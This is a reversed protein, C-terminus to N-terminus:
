NSYVFFYAKQKQASALKKTLNFARFDQSPATKVTCHFCRTISYLIIRNEKFDTKRKGQQLTFTLRKATRNQINKIFWTKFPQM